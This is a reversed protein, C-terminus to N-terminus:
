ENGQIKNLPQGIAKRIQLKAQIATAILKVAATQIATIKALKRNVWDQAEPEMIFTSFRERLSDCYTEVMPWDAFSKKETDIAFAQGDETNFINSAYIDGHYGTLKALRFFDRMQQLTFPKTSPKIYSAVIWIVEQPDRYYKQEPARISLNNEQACRNIVQAGLIRSSGRRLDNALVKKMILNHEELIRTYQMCDPYKGIIAVVNSPLTCMRLPEARTSKEDLIKQTIEDVMNQAFIDEPSIRPQKFYNYSQQEMTQSTGAILTTIVAISLVIKFFKM